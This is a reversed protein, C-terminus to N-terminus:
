DQRGHRRRDHPRQRALVVLTARAYVLAQLVRARVFVVAYAATTARAVGAPAPDRALSLLMRLTMSAQGAALRAFFSWPAGERLAQDRRGASTRRLKTELEPWSARAPHRVVAAPAYRQTGGGRALRQGFEADGRSLLRADFPGARDLSSRRVVMNATVAFRELTVYREQPFAHRAEYLETGSRPVGDLGGAADLFYLRVAGGVMDARPPEDLAQVARALWTPEPLCDGDTFACVEGTAVALATNRAAYSGAPAQVLLRFRPDDPLAAALEETSGDDVVIVEVREAPYTQAALASLCGALADAGDRVPVIVSVSPVSPVSPPAVPAQM